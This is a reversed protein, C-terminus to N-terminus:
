RPARGALTEHTSRVVTWTGDRRELTAAVRLSWALRRREDLGEYLQVPVSATAREGEIEIPYDEGLGVDYVLRGSAAERRNQFVWLLAGRLTQRDLDLTEDRYDPAFSDLVRLAAGANFRAAETAFLARIREEDSRTWARVTSWLALIAMLGLVGLIARKM